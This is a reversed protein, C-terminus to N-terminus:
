IYLILEKLVAVLNKNIEAEVYIEGADLRKQFSSKNFTKTKNKKLDKMKVSDKTIDIVQYLDTDGSSHPIRYTKNKEILRKM